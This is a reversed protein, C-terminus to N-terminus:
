TSVGRMKKFFNAVLRAAHTAFDLEGIGNGAEHRM